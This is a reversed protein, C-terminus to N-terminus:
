FPIEDDLDASFSERPGSPQQRQFGGGGASYGGEDGREADGGRGGPVPQGCIFPAPGCGEKEYIVRM